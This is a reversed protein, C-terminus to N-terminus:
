NYNDDFYNTNNISVKWVFKFLIVLKKQIKKTINEVVFSCKVQEDRKSKKSKKQNKQIVPVQKNDSITCVM